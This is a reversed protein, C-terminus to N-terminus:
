SVRGGRPFSEGTHRGGSVCPLPHCELGGWNLSLHLFTHLFTNKGSFSLSTWVLPQAAPGAADRWRQSLVFFASFSLGLESCWCLCIDNRSWCPDPVTYLYNPPVMLQECWCAWVCVAVEEHRGHQRLAQYKRCSVSLQDRVHLM